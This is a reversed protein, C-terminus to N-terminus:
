DPVVEVIAISRAAIEIRSRRTDGAHWWRRRLAGEVRVRGDAPVAAAAAILRRGVQGARPRRGKPPAPGVSVPLTDVRGDARQVVLRLAVVEDGSPLQRREPIASVRGEVVVENRDM